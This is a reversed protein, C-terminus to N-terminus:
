LGEQVQYTDKEPEETADPILTVFCTLTYAVHM